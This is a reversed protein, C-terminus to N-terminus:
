AWKQDIQDKIFDVVAMGSDRMTKYRRNFLPWDKNWDRLFADIISNDEMKKEM